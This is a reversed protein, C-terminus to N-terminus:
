WSDYKASKGPESDDRGGSGNKKDPVLGIVGSIRLRGDGTCEISHSASHGFLMRSLTSGLHVARGGIGRGLVADIVIREGDDEEARVDTDDGFLHRLISGILREAGDASALYRSDFAGDDRSTFMDDGMADRSLRNVAIAMLDQRWTRVGYWRPVMIDCHGGANMDRLIDLCLELDGRTPDTDSLYMAAQELNVIDEIGANHLSMDAVLRMYMVRQAASRLMRLHGVFTYPEDSIWKDKAIAKPVGVAALAAAKMADPEIIRPMMGSNEYGYALWLRDGDADDTRYVVVADGDGGAAEVLVRDDCVAKVWDCKPPCVALEDRPTDLIQRGTMPGASTRYTRADVVARMRDLTEAESDAADAHWPCIGLNSVNFGDARMDVCIKALKTVGPDRPICIVDAGLDAADKRTTYTGYRVTVRGPKRDRPSSDVYPAIRKAGLRELEEWGEGNKLFIVPGKGDEVYEFASRRWKIGTDPAYWVQGSTFDDLNAVWELTRSVIKNDIGWMAAYRDDDDDKAMRALPIAGSDFSSRDVKALVDYKTYLMDVAHRVSESVISLLPRSACTGDDQPERLELRNAALMRVIMPMNGLLSGPDCEIKSLAEKVDTAVRKWIRRSASESLWDRSTTPEYKREDLINLTTTGFLKYCPQSGHTKIPIGILYTADDSRNPLEDCRMCGVFEYDPTKIRVADKCSCGHGGRGSVKARSSNRGFGVTTLYVPVRSAAAIQRVYGPLGDFDHKDDVCVSTRTGYESISLMDDPIPEFVKGGRVIFGYREGTERAYTEVIKTDSAGLYAFRGIGKQGSERGDLNGSRGLVTYVDKFVAVPMGDTDVDHVEVTRADKNVTVHVYAKRGNARAQRVQRLANNMDERVFAGFYEYLDPAVDRILSDIEMGLHVRGDEGTLGSIASNGDGGDALAKYREGVDIRRVYYPTKADPPGAQSPAKGAAESGGGGDAADLARIQAEISKAMAPAAELTRQGLEQRRGRRGTM